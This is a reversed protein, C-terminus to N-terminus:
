CLRISSGRLAKCVVPHNNAYTDYIAMYEFFWKIHEDFFRQVEAYNFGSDIFMAGVYSEVIDALCKPAEKVTTWYNRAGEAAERALELEEVFNTIQNQIASSNHRLHKHFGLKVCVAGLFRNSVLAMKHETLWQPDASKHKYWLYSVATMDMLADGLFELRQYSPLGDWIRPMSAHLFASQLLRPYKFVYKHSKEVREALDRHIANAEGIQWLPPAYAKNYDAWTLMEHDESRVFTFVAKVAEDFQTTSGYGSNFHTVFAAGIMAECVDAITKDGLNKRLSFKLPENKVGKVAGRGSLLRLGEPYWTRRYFLDTLLIPM